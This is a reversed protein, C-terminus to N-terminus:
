ITKGMSGGKDLFENINKLHDSSKNVLGLLYGKIFSLACDSYVNSMILDFLSASLDLLGVEQGRKRKIALPKPM